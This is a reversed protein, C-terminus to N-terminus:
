IPLDSAEIRRGSFRLNKMDKKNKCWEFLRKSFKYTKKNRGGGGKLETALFIIQLYYFYQLPKQWL